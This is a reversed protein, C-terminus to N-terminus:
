SIFFGKNTNRSQFDIKSFKNIRAHVLALHKERMNNEAEEVKAEDHCNCGVIDEYNKKAELYAIYEETTEWEPILHSEDKTRIPDM